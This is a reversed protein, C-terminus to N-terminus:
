SASPFGTFPPDPPCPLFVAGTFGAEGFSLCAFGAGIFPVGAFALDCGAAEFPFGLGFGVGLGFDRGTFDATFFRLFYGAKTASAAAKASYAAAPLKM